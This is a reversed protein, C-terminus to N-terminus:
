SQLVAEALMEVMRELRGPAAESQATTMESRM